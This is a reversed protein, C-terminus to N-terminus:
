VFKFEDRAMFSIASTEQSRIISKKKELSGAGKSLKENM